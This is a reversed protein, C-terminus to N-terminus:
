FADKHVELLTPLEIVFIINFKKKKKIFNVNKINHILNYIIFPTKLESLLLKPLIQLVLQGIM